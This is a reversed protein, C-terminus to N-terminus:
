YFTIGQSRCGLNWILNLNSVTTVRINSKAKEEPIEEVYNFPFYGTIGDLMGYWWKDKKDIVKIIEGKQFSLENDSRGNYDYLAQARM